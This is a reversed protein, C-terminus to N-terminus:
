QAFSAVRRSTRSTYPYIHIYVQTIEDGDDEEPEGATGQARPNLQEEEAIHEDHFMAAVRRPFAFGRLARHLCMCTHLSPHAILTVPQGFRHSLISVFNLTCANHSPQLM